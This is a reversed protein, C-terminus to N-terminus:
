STSKALSQDEDTADQYILLGTRIQKILVEGVHSRMEREMNAVSQRIAEMLRRGKRTFVVMKARQDTPDPKREVLGMHECQEVLDAMSQKTMSARAALVTVRTGDLDMNRPVAMHAARVKPFGKANVNRIIGDEFQRATNFLLRGTNTWRWNDRAPLSITRGKEEGSMALERDDRTAADDPGNHIAIEVGSETM